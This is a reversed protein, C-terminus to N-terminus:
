EFDRRYTEPEVADPHISAPRFNFFKIDKAIIDADSTTKPTEMIDFALDRVGTKFTLGSAVWKYGFKEALEILANDLFIDLGDKVKYYIKLENEKLKM